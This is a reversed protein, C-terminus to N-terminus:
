GFIADLGVDRFCVLELPFVVIKSTKLPENQNFITYNLVVKTSLQSIKCVLQGFNYGFQSFNSWTPGFNPQLQSCSPALVSWFRDLQTGRGPWLPRTPTLPPDLLPGAAAISSSLGRPCGNILSQCNVISLQFIQCAMAWLGPSNRPRPGASWTWLPVVPLWKIM